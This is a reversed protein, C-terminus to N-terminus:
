SVSSVKGHLVGQSASEFACRDEVLALISNSIENRLQVLYKEMFESCYFDQISCQKFLQKILYRNRLM